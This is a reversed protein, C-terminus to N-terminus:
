SRFLYARGTYAHGPAGVVATGGSVGVSYGFSDGTTTDTGVLEATQHWDGAGEQFLYARGAYHAHDPAAVVATGGSVAVSYGFVDGSIAVSHGFVDDVATDSGVLEATQHWGGAGEQFLYARGAYHAHDPAGVVVMGGSVAVSWGFHDSAATDSGVLEATQHWGGAGEQFVYARGGNAHSAGVVATGDSVAVSSGFNNDITTDTGVLEATQHWGGAGEQFLYVRGAYHAHDPAAVVATGGSVAVSNGFGDGAVTDTGVLEATQHWGRTGEQFVYARGAGNAHGPAGVVVMGGSIAISYGFYDGAATDSGVLEAVQHWGGTGKQSLYARGAYHADDPAGVVATGDSVAVSFGFFDNTATHPDVLEALQTGTSSAVRPGAAGPWATALLVPGALGPVALAAIVLAVFSKAPRM